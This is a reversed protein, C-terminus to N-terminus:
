LVIIEITKKSGMIKIAWSVDTIWSGNNVSKPNQTLIVIVPTNPNRIEIAIKICTLNVLGRVFLIEPVALAHQWVIRAIIM